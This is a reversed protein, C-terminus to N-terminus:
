SVGEVKCCYDQIRDYATDAYYVLVTDPHNNVRVYYGGNYPRDMPPPSSHAISYECDDGMIDHIHHVIENITVHRLSM